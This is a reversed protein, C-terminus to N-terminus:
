VRSPSMSAPLSLQAILPNSMGIKSYAQLSQLLFNSASTRESVTGSHGTQWELCKSFCNDTKAVVAEAGSTAGMGDPGHPDQGFKAPGAPQPACQSAQVVIGM